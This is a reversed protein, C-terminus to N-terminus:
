PRVRYYNDLHKDLIDCNILVLRDIKYVAGAELALDHMKNEGIGYEKCAEKYRLFRRRFNVYGNPKM